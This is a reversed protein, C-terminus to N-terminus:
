FIEGLSITYDIFLETKHYEGRSNFPPGESYQSHHTVGITIQDTLQYYLEIRATLARRMKYPVQDAGRFWLETEKLKYGVGVTLHTKNLFTQVNFAEAQADSSAAVVIVGVAIATLFKFKLAANKM